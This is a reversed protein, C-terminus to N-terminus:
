AVQQAADALDVVRRERDDAGAAVAGRGGRRQQRPVAVGSQAVDGAARGRPNAVPKRDLSLIRRRKDSSASRFVGPGTGRRSPLSTRVPGLGSTAFILPTIKALRLCNRVSMLASSVTAAFSEGLVAACSRVESAEAHYSKAVSM